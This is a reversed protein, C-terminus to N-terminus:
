FGLVKSSVINGNADKFEFFGYLATDPAVATYTGGDLQAEARMWAADHIDEAIHNSYYFSAKDVGVANDLGVSAHFGSVKEDKLRLMNDKGYLIYEAFAYIEPPSAGQDQGHSYTSRFSYSSKGKALDAGRQNNILSFSHDDAGGLWLIPVDAYSLYASPDFKSVYTDKMEENYGSFMVALGSGSDEHLYAAGYVPVAFKVRDDVGIYINTLYSGWSIGTIGIKDANVSDDASLINYASMTNAISLYLWSNKFDSLDAIRWGYGKPGGDPNNVPMSFNGSECMQADYDVAIAAYGRDTWMKIWDPFAKGLGGHLLIIGPYGSEPKPTSPIGIFAFINTKAGNYDLGEFFIGKIGPAYQVGADTVAPLAAKLAAVDWELERKDEPKGCAGLMFPSVGMLICFLTAAIRKKSM